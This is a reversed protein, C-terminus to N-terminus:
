EGTGFRRSRFQLLDHVQRLQYKIGKTDYEEGRRGPGGINFRALLSRGGTEAAM